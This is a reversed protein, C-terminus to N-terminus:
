GAGFCDECCDPGDPNADCPDWYQTAGLVASLDVAHIPEATEPDLAEVHISLPTGELSKSGVEYPDPMSLQIGAVQPWADTSLDLYVETTPVIEAGDTPDTVVARLRASTGCDSCGVALWIHWGGQPGEMLPITAGDEVREFCVEGTGAEFSEASDPATCEVPEPETSCALLLSTSLAFLWHISPRM